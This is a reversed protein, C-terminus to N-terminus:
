SAEAAQMQGAVAELTLILSERSQMDSEHLHFVLIIKFIYIYKECVQFAVAVSCAVVVAANELCEAESAAVAAEETLQFSIKM